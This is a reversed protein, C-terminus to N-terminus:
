RGAAVPKSQRASNGLSPGPQVSKNLLTVKPRPPDITAELNLVRGDKLDARAPVKDGAHLASIDQADTSLKLEDKTDKRSLGAPAFRIGKLEVAAVQDLRTGILTAQADGANIAFKDLHAAEAYSHLDVEEPKGSGYQKVLM